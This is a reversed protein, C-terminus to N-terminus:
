YYIDGSFLSYPVPLFTQINISLFKLLLVLVLVNEFEAIVRRGEAKKRRGEEKKRVEFVLIM